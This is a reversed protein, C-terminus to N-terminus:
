PRAPTNSTVKAVTATSLAAPQLSKKTFGVSVLIVTVGSVGVIVGHGGGEPETHVTCITALPVKLSPLVEVIAALQDIEGPSPEIAVILVPPRTVPTAAPVAVTVAAEPVTLLEVLTVTASLPSSVMTSLGAPLRDNDWAAPDWRNVAIPVNLPPPDCSMVLATVQLEDSLVTALTLLVAPVLPKTVSRFGPVVFM